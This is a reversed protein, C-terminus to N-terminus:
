KSNFINNTKEKIAEKAWKPLETNNKTIKNDISSFINKYINTNDYIKVYDCKSIIKKLNEFSEYYRKEIVEPAINHGGKLVRNKVREKAIEPSNVGVYFLYIKYGLEKAKEITKLITKGTLTPSNYLQLNELEM